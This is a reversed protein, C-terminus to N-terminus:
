LFNSKKQIKLRKEDQFIFRDKRKLAKIQDVASTLFPDDEDGIFEVDRIVSPKNRSLLFPEEIPLKNDEQKSVVIGDEFELFNDVTNGIAFTFILKILDIVTLSGLNPFDKINFQAWNILEQEPNVINAYQYLQSLGQWAESWSVISVNIGSIISGPHYLTNSSFIGRINAMLGRRHTRLHDKTSIQRPTLIKADGYNNNSLDEIRLRIFQMRDTLDLVKYEEAEYMTSRQISSTAIFRVVYKNNNFQKALYKMTPLAQIKERELVGSQSNSLQSRWLLFISVVLIDVVADETFTYAFLLDKYTIEPLVFKINRNLRKQMYIYLLLNKIFSVLVDYDIM